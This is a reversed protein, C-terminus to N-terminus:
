YAIEIDSKNRIEELLNEFLEDKKKKLVMDKVEDKVTLFNKDVYDDKKDVWRTLYYNNDVEITKYHNKDLKTVENWIKSNIEDEMVYGVYGGNKGIAEKSYKRAIRSFRINSLQQRIFDLKSKDKILIRQIKYKKVKRQFKSKHLKYYNFMEDETVSLNALKNALLANSKINKAASEIKIQVEDTESIKLRDAEGALM